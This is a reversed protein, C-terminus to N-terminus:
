LTVVQATWGQTAWAASRITKQRHSLGMVQNVLEFVKGHPAILAGSIPDTGVGRPAVKFLGATAPHPFLTARDEDAVAEPYEFYGSNGNYGGNSRFVMGLSEASDRVQIFNGEIPMGENAFPNEGEALAIIDGRGSVYITHAMEVLSVQFQADMCQQCLGDTTKVRAGCIRCPNPLEILKTSMHGAENISAVPTAPIQQWPNGDYGNVLTIEVAAAELEAEDALLEELEVEAQRFYEEVAPYLDPEGLERVAKVLETATKAEVVQECAGDASVLFQYPIGHGGELSEIKWGAEALMTLALTEADNVVSTAVIAKAREAAYAAAFAAERAGATDAQRRVQRRNKKLM